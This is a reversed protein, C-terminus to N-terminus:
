TYIIKHMSNESLKFYKSKLGWSIKKKKLLM